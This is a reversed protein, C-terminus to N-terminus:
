KKLLMYVGLAGLAYTIYSGDMVYSSSSAPNPAVSNGLKLNVGKGTLSLGKGDGRLSFGSSAWQSLRQGLKAEKALKFGAVTARAAIPILPM